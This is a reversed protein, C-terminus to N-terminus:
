ISTIHDQSQSSGSSMDYRDYILRNFKFTNILRILYFPSKGELSTALLVWGIGGESSAAVAQTVRHEHTPPELLNKSSGVGFLPDETNLVKQLGKFNTEILVDIIQLILNFYQFDVSKGHLLTM